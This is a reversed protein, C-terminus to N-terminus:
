WNCFAMNGFLFNLLMNTRQTIPMKGLEGRVCAYIAMFLEVSLAKPQMKSKNSYRQGGSPDPPRLVLHFVTLFASILLSGMVMTLNFSTSSM